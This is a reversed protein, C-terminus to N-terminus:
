SEPELILAFSIGHQRFGLSRYFEHAGLRKLDASVALKYCGKQRCKELAFEIMVKGVGSRQWSPAVGIAELVGSRAGFHVINDMILLAFTGIVIQEAVAVYLSYDPYDAMRQLRAKAKKVSLTREGDIQPQSYIELIAPLDTETAARVQINM